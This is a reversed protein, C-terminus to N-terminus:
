ENRPMEGEFLIVNDDNEHHQVEILGDIVDFEMWYSAMTTAGYKAYVAQLNNVDNDLVAFDPLKDTESEKVLGIGSWNNMWGKYDDESYFVPLQFVNIECEILTVGCTAHLYWPDNEDFPFLEQLDKRVGTLSSYPRNYFEMAAELSDFSVDKIKASMCDDSCMDLLVHYM